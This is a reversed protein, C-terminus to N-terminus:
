AAAPRRRAAEILDRLGDPAFVLGVLILPAIMLGWYFTDARCFLALLMAYAAITVAVRRAFPGPAAAWGFLALGALVSALAAPLLALSTTSKIVNVLFGFGLMGSWGPSAPDEPLVVQAVQHAHLAIVGAFVALAAGWGLMERPRRELLALGAMAAVYLAATERILMAALGVLVAAAWRRDTRLGLSLAILLGAWCEHFAVLEPKAVVAAGCLLLISAIVRPRPGDLVNGMRRWWAAAVAAVLGYLLLISAIPPLAAQVSALTPLRFTVFPKLPYNGTRLSHAVLPYYAKGERLGDVIREYLLIDERDKVVNEPGGKAPPPAPATLSSLCLLLVATVAALVVRATGPRLMAFHSPTKLWFRRTM